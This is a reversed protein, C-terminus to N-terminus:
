NLLAAVAAQTALDMYPEFGHETCHAIISQVINVRDNACADAIPTKKRHNMVDVSAGHTLLADIIAIDTLKHWCAVALATNNERDTADPRADHSLLLKVMDVRNMSCASILPLTANPCHPVNANAGAELLTQMTTLQGNRTAVVLQRELLAEPTRPMRLTKKRRRIPHVFAISNHCLPCPKHYGDKKLTLDRWRIICSKHFAHGCDLVDKHTCLSEEDRCISCEIPEFVASTPIEDTYELSVLRPFDRTDFDRRDMPAAAGLQTLTIGILMLVVNALTRNISVM